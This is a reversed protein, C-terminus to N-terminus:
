PHVADALTSLGHTIRDAFGPDAASPFEEAVSELTTLSCECSLAVVVDGTQWVVMPSYGENEVVYVEAGKVDARPMQATANPSLHGHEQVVTVQHADRGALITAVLVMGGDRRQIVTAEVPIITSTSFDPHIWSQLMEGSRMEQTNAYAVPAAGGEHPAAFALTVEDPAGVQWAAGVLVVAIVVLAAAAVVPARRVPRRSKQNLSPDGAAIEAIRERDLLRQAFRMDIGAESSTLADRAEMLEHFRSACDECEGLHAMATYAKDGRLRGDLLDHISEGLHKSTM